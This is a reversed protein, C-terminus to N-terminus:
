LADGRGTAPRRHDLVSTKRDRGGVGCRLRAAATDDLYVYVDGKRAWKRIRATWRALSDDGYGGAYLTGEGHLRVYTFDVDDCRDGSLAPLLRRAVGPVAFRQPRHSITRRVDTV